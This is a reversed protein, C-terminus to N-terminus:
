FLLAERAINSMQTAEHRPIERTGHLEVIEQLADRYCKYKAMLQNWLQGKEIAEYMWKEDIEPIIETIKEM